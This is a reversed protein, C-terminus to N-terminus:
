EYLPLNFITIEPLIDDITKGYKDLLESMSEAFVREVYEKDSVPFMISDHVTVLPIYPKEDKIRRIVTSYVFKSELRQLDHSLIYYKGRESKYKVIWEHVTPYLKRFVINWRNNKVKGFLVRYVLIKARKRAAEAALEPYAYTAIRNYINGSLVDYAYNGWDTFGDEKMLKYLFTPQSNPVDIEAIEEGGLYLYSQRLEKKLISFNTHMRGFRDFKQYIEGSAIAEISYKNKMYSKLSILGKEFCETIYSLSEERNIAMLRADDILMEQIDEPIINYKYFLNVAKYHSPPHPFTSEIMIEKTIEKCLIYTRAKEGVIYKEGAKFFGTDVLYNLVHKYFTGYLTKLVQSHLEMKTVAESRTYYRFLFQHMVEILKWSKIYVRKGQPTIYSVKKASILHTYREPIHRVVVKREM